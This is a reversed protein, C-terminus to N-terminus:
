LANVRTAAVIDAQAEPTLLAALHMVANPSFAGFADRVSNLDTIDCDRARGGAPTKPMQRDLALVVHGDAALRRALREGLFGGAGTIAIRM